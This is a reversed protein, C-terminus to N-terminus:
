LRFRRVGVVRQGIRYQHHRRGRAVEDGPARRPCLLLRQRPQGQGAPELGGALHRQADTRGLLRCQQGPHRGARAFRGVERVSGGGCGRGRCRARGSGGQDGGQRTRGRLVDGSGEQRLRRHDCGSRRFIPLAGARHRWECGHDCRSQRHFERAVRWSLAAGRRDLGHEGRPPPRLQLLRHRHHRGAALGDVAAIVAGRANLDPHAPRLIGRVQRSGRLRRKVDWADVRVRERRRSM